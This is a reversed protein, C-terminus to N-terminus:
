SNRGICQKALFIIREIRRVQTTFELRKHEGVNRRQSVGARCQHIPISVFVHIDDDSFRITFKIKEPVLPIRDYRIPMKFGIVKLEYIRSSERNRCKMVHITISIRLQENAINGMRKECCAFNM